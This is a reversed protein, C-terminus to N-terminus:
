RRRALRPWRQELTATVDVGHREAAWAAARVVPVAAEPAAWPGEILRVLVPDVRSPGDVGAAWLMTKLVHRGGTSFAFPPESPLLDALRDGFPRLADVPPKAQRM